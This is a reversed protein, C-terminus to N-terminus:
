KMFAFLQFYFNGNLLIFYVIENSCIYDIIKGM